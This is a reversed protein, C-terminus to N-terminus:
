KGNIESTAQQRQSKKKTNRQQQPKSLREFPDLIYDFCPEEPRRRGYLSDSASVDSPLFHSIEIIESALQTFSLLRRPVLSIAPTIHVLGRTHLVFGCGLNRRHNGEERTELRRVCRRSSSKERSREPLMPRGKKNSSGPTTSQSPAPTQKNRQDAFISPM